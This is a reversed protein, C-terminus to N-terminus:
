DKLEHTEGEIALYSEEFEERVEDLFPTLDKYRASFHGILLKGVKAKRAMKGAQGTTSHFTKAAWEERSNLFTAEHYLMDVNEIIPILQEQYSTDSLYAYSRSHRPPLTLESAAYQVSGDENLIDEGRKLAQIKKVNMGSPLKEKNIRFPKSKERFLFGCCPIRHNLPFSTVEVKEDEFIIETGEPNLQHFRITYNLRTDSYKLQLTIIDQLGKQGYLHLPKKRGMLHFTFLLGMLGLYHDGHLHSIFIHQIRASHCQFRQLQIQTGEGCDVLFYRQEITVFQATHHRGYAPTASNSGLIKVEFSM